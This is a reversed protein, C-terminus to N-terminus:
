SVVQRRQWPALPGAGPIAALWAQHRDHEARQSERLQRAQESVHRSHAAADEASLPAPSSALMDDIQQRTFEDALRRAEARERREARERQEAPTPAELRDLLRQLRALEEREAATPASKVAAPQPALRELRDIEAMLRRTEARGEDDKVSIVYAEPNAPELCPGCETINLKEILTAGSRM